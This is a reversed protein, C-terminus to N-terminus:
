AVDEDVLLVLALWVFPIALRAPAPLLVVSDQGEAVTVVELLTLVLAVWGLEREVPFGKDGGFLRHLLRFRGVIRWGRGQGRNLLTRSGAQQLSM